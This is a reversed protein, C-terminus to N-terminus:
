RASSPGADGPQGRRARRLRRLHGPPHGARHGRGLLDPLGRRHGGHARPDRRLRVRGPRARDQDDRRPRAAGPQAARPDRARGGRRLVADLLDSFPLRIRARVRRVARARGRPPSRTAAWTTCRASRPDSLVEYAQTIEKFQEQTEPDPNVDPHLERALRRYARKIEDQTADRRFGSCRTITRAVLVGRSDPRRVPRRGAGRGDHGPLGDPDARACRAQRRGPRPGTPPPSWRRARCARSSTEAGIRVTLAVPEAAEGLLRMLVVQEELAELVDRLGKGFDPAALNAAGGFM